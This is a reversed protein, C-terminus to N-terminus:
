TLMICMVCMRHIYICYICYIHSLDPPGTHNHHKKKLWNKANRKVLGRTSPKYFQFQYLNVHSFVLPLFMFMPSCSFCFLIFGFVRLFVRSDILHRQEKCTKYIWSLIAFFRFTSNRLQIFTILFMWLFPMWLIDALHFIYLKPKM